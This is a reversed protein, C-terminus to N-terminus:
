SNATITLTNNNPGSEGTAVTMGKFNAKGDYETATVIVSDRPGGIHVHVSGVDDSIVVIPENDASSTPVYNHVPLVQTEVLSAVGPQGPKMQMSTSGTSTSTGGSFPLALGAVLVLCLILLLAPIVIFWVKRRSRRQPELKGRERYPIEQSAYEETVTAFSSPQERPDLNIVGQKTHESPQWDPDVFQMQQEDM